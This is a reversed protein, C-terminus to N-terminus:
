RAAERGEGGPLTLYAIGMTGLGGNLSCSVCARELIVKEFPVYKLVEDVFQRQELVSCSAHTVFVVRPDIGDGHSLMRRIQARRAKELSGHCFGSVKVDGQRTRVVPRLGLAESVAESVGGGHGSERFSRIDPLVFASEIRDRLGELERCLDEARTVGGRALTTAALAILGEGCSVHGSDFVHVHGFGRAAQRANQFSKGAGSAMSVHVVEEAESLADAFFAEYEDVSASVAQARSGPRSLYRSLNDSDIEATDRFVGRDTEIYSYIVKLGWTKAYERSLDSICDTTIQIKKRRRARPAGAAGGAGAAPARYEVVEDPLFRLVEAELLASDIPKSVYGDFGEELCRARDAASANATVAIVPTQAARDGEQRRLAKLTEEGDMGPMMSDLLIVHYQKGEAARLCEEGSRALDTQVKTARLLKQAVALNTENDDVILVRARPAEFSQRYRAGEGGAVREPSAGRTFGGAGIPEGSTVPQEITVTFVSGKRYISDVTLTGGMLSVLQKTISLGLGSGEVKRNKERDVRKFYDYLSDLDEKRIGIGTDSVALTLRVREGGDLPEGRASLTVSGEQTYKAANTLLNILIQKIRMEDGMLGSPLEPDVDVVFDLGKESMRVQMLGVVDDFLERTGYPAPVIAMRDSEIQSFDLIDNILSLLIRGANKVQAADAAVEDSVDERLIMENLGIISNIPTRIEHSMNAFFADRTKLIREIEDKQRLTREREREFAQLQFRMIIGVSIGVALVAFLSDFHVDLESGLPRVAGPHRYSYAYTAVDAAIALFLFFFMARGRFMLFIYLIGLVFWVAAGGSVGGSFFFALPFAICVAVIAFLAAALDVKHFRFTAIASAILATLLLLIPISNAIPDEMLLGGALSVCSVAIGAVLIIRLLRERMDFADGYLWAKIKEAM